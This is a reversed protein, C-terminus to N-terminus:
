ETTRVGCEPLPCSSVQPAERVSTVTLLNDFGEERPRKAFMKRNAELMHVERQDLASNAVGLPRRTKAQYPEDRSQLVRQRDRKEHVQPLRTLLLRLCKTPIREAGDVWGSDERENLLVDISAVCRNEIHEARQSVDRLSEDARVLSAGVARYPRAEEFPHRSPMCKVCRTQGLDECAAEALVRSVPGRNPEERMEVVPGIGRFDVGQCARNLRRELPVISFLQQAADHFCGGRDTDRETYADQRADPPDRILGDNESEHIRNELVSEHPIREGCRHPAGDFPPHAALQVARRLPPTPDEAVQRGVGFGFSLACFQNEHQLAAQPVTRRTDSQVRMAQEPIMRVTRSIESRCTDQEVIGIRRGNPAGDADNCKSAVHLRDGLERLEEKM